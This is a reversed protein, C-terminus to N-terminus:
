EIFFVGDNGVLEVMGGDDIADPEALRLAVTVAVPATMLVVVALTTALVLSATIAKAMAARHPTPPQNLRGRPARLPM